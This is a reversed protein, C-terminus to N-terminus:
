KHWSTNKTKGQLIYPINDLSQCLDEMSLYITKNKKKM